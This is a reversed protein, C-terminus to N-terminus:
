PIRGSSARIKALEALAMRHEIFYTVKLNVTATFYLRATEAEGRALRAQGIYYLAEALMERQRIDNGVDNLREVVKEEALNGELWDLLPRPWDETLESAVIGPTGLKSRLQTLWLFCQYYTVRESDATDAILRRLGAIAEPWREEIFDLQMLIAGPEVNDPDIARGREAEARAEAPQGAHILAAALSAHVDASRPNCAISKRFADIAATIEGMAFWTAGLTDYLGAFRNAGLTRACDAAPPPNQKLDHEARALRRRLQQDNTMPVFPLEQAFDFLPMEEAALATGCALLILLLLASRLLLTRRV